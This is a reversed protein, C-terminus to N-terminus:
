AKFGWAAARPSAHYEFFLHMYKRGFTVPKAFTPGEVLTQRGSIWILGIIVADSWPEVKRLRVLPVPM